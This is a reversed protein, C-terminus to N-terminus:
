LVADSAGDATVLNVEVAIRGGVGRRYGGEVNQQACYDGLCAALESRGVSLVIADACRKSVFVSFGCHLEYADLQLVYGLVHMGQVAQVIELVMNMDVHYDGLANVTEGLGAALILVV